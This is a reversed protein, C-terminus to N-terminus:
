FLSEMSWVVGPGSSTAITLLLTLGNPVYYLGLVDGSTLNLDGTLTVTGKGLIVRLNLVLAVNVDLMPLTGAVLNVSSRQIAFYPAVGTGLSATLTASTYSITAKCTYKGTTPVTFTGASANFGSGSYYPSTTSYGTFLQTTSGTISVTGSASFGVNPSSSTNVWSTVGLGNTSLFQGNTGTTKPLVFLSSSTMSSPAKVFSNYTGDSMALLPSTNQNGQITLPTAIIHTM